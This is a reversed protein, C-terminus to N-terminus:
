SISFYTARNNWNIAFGDKLNPAYDIWKSDRNGASLQVDCYNFTRISEVNYAFPAYDGDPLPAEFEDGDYPRTCDGGLKWIRLRKGTFNQGTFLAAALTRGKEPTGVVEEECTYGYGFSKEYLVCDRMIGASASGQTVVVGGAVVVAAVAAGRAAKGWAKM